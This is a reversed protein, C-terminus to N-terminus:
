NALVVSLVGVSIWKMWWVDDFLMCKETHAETTIINGYCEVFMWWRSNTRIFLSDWWLSWCCCVVQGDPKRTYWEYKYCKLWFDIAFFIRGRSIHTHTHSMLIITIIKDHKALTKRIMVPYGSGFDQYCEGYTTKLQLGFIHSHSSTVSEIWVM